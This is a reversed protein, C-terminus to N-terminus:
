TKWLVKGDRTDIATEKPAGTKPDSKLIQIDKTQAPGLWFEADLNSGHPGYFNDLWQKVIDKAKEYSFPGHAVALNDPKGNSLGRPTIAYWGPPYEIGNVSLNRVNRFEPMSIPYNFFRLQIKRTPNLVYKPSGSEIHGIVKELFRFFEKQYDSSSTGRYLDLEEYGNEILIEWLKSHLNPNIQYSTSGDTNKTVPM